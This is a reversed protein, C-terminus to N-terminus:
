TSHTKSRTLYTELFLSLSYFPKFGNQGEVVISIGNNRTGVDCLRKPIGPRKNKRFKLPLQSCKEM